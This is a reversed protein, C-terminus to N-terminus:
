SVHEGYMTFNGYQEIMCMSRKVFADTSSKTWWNKREGNGDFMRGVLSQFFLINM